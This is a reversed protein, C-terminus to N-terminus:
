SGNEKLVKRKYSYYFAKEQFYNSLAMLLDNVTKIIIGIFILCFSYNIIGIDNVIKLLEKDM